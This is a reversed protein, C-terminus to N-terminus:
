SGSPEVGPAVRSAPGGPSKRDEEEPGVRRRELRAAREEQTEAEPEPEPKKRSDSM